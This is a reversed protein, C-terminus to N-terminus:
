KVIKSIDHTRNKELFNMFKCGNKLIYRKQSQGVVGIGIVVLVQTKARLDAATKQIDDLEAETIAAPLDFWGLFDNGKSTGNQLSKLAESAQPYLASIEEKKVFNCIQSYDFKIMNM